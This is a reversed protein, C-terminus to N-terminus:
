CGPNGPPFSAEQLRGRHVELVGLRTVRSRRGCAPCRVKGRRDPPELPPQGAGPCREAVRKAAEKLAKERAAQFAECGEEALALAVRAPIRAQERSEVPAEPFCRSCLAPGLDAVAELPERGSLYPVLAFGTPTRGKNCTSCDPSRHIHGDSSTVLWYRSWPRSQFERDIESVRELAEELDAHSTEIDSVNRGAWRLRPHGQRHLDILQEVDIQHRAAEEFSAGVLVYADPHLFLTVRGYHRRQAYCWLLSDRSNRLRRSAEDKVRLRELLLTDIEISTLTKM